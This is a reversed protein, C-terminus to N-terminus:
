FPVEVDMGGSDDPCSLEAYSEVSSVTNAKPISFPIVKNVIVDTTYVKQGNKEYSGTEIEGLVALKDGKAFQEVFEADKGWVKCNPYNTKEKAEGNKATWKKTIALSFSAVKSGSSMTFIKPDRVLNGVLLVNNCDM